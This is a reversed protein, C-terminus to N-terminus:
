LGLFWRLASDKLKTPFPKLKHADQLYNYIRCLIDFEFLFTDLDENIKGYFTPLSSPPTNKMTVDQTTDLIPFEFTAENKNEGEGEENRVEDHDENEGHREM